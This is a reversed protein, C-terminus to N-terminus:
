IQFPPAPFPSEMLPFVSPPFPTLGSRGSREEHNWAALRHLPRIFRSPSPSPRRLLGHRAGAQEAQAAQRVPRRLRKSRLSPIPNLCNFHWCAPAPCGLSKSAAKTGPPPRSHRKFQRREVQRLRVQQIGTHHSTIKSGSRGSPLPITNTAPLRHVPLPPTVHPPPGRKRPAGIASTRTLRNNQSRTSHRKHSVPPMSLLGPADASNRRRSRVSPFAPRISCFASAVRRDYGAPPTSTTDVDLLWRVVDLM